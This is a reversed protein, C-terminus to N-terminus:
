SVLERQEIEIIKDIFRKAEKITKSNPLTEGTQRHVSTYFDIDEPKPKRPVLNGNLHFKFNSGPYYQPFIDYKKFIM